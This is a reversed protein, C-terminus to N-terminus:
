SGPEAGATRLSAVREGPAMVPEPNAALLAELVALVAAKERLGGARIEIALWTALPEQRHLYSAVSLRATALERAMDASSSPPVIDASVLTPLTM